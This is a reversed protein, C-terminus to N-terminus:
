FTDLSKISIIIRYVFVKQTVNALCISKTLDGTVISIDYLVTTM